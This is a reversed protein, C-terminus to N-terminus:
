SKSKNESKVFFVIKVNENGTIKVM